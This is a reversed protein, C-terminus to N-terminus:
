ATKRRRFLGLAVLGAGVLAFDAPEPTTTAVAIYEQQGVAYRNPISTNAVDTSTFIRISNVFNSYQTPSMATLQNIATQIEANVAAQSSGGITWEQAGNTNLLTWIADQITVDTSTVTGGPFSYLTTLYAAIIYRNEADGAVPSPSTTNFSFSSTATTGYRTKSVDANTPTGAVTPISINVNFATNFASLDNRYDVCFVDFLANSNNDLYATFEGGGYINEPFGTVTLTTAFSAASFALWLLGWVAPRTFTRM